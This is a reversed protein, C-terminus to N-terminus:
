TLFRQIVERTNELEAPRSLQCEWVILCEWGLEALKKINEKDREVNRILKPEWYETKSKPLRGDICHEHQHWFCGHVFIVKRKAVFVLDPKGPLDKRHLRYRFGLKSVLKQLYLEPKTDISRIRRMNRYRRVPDIRDVMLLM